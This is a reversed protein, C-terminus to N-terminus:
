SKKVKTVDNIEIHKMEGSSHCFVENHWQGRFRRSLSSYDTVVPILLNQVGKFIHYAYNIASKSSNWPMLKAPGYLKVIVRALSADWHPIGAFKTVYGVERDKVEKVILRENCYFYVGYDDLVPDKERVLGANIEIGVEKHDPTSIMSFYCTPDYNPPIGM